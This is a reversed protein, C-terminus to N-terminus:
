CDASGMEQVSLLDALLAAEPAQQAVVPALLNQLKILKQAPPDGREFRAARELQNIIPYLASDSHQTATSKGMGQFGDCRRRHSDFQRQGM